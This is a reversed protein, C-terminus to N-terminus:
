RRELYLLLALGIQVLGTLFSVMEANYTAFGFSLVLFYFAVLSLVWVIPVVIVFFIKQM